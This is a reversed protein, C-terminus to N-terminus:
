KTVPLMECKVEGFSGSPVKFLSEQGLVLNWIDKSSKIKEM